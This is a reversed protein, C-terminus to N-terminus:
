LNSRESTKKCPIDILSNPLGNYKNTVRIFFSYQKLPTRVHFHAFIGNYLKSQPNLMVLWSVPCEIILLTPSHSRSNFHTPSHSERVAYSGSGSVLHLPLWCWTTILIIVWKNMSMVHEYGIILSSQQKDV